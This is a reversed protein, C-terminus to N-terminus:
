YMSVAIRFRAGEGTNEATLTGGMNKEIINKSMQLGIGTGGAAARTTVYLDFVRDLISEPIGGANDTLTVVASGGDAFSKIKIQPSTTNRERFVERANSLINLLVQTYEKPYGVASLEPCLELVVAISEYKLAPSIFALANKVCDNISFVVKEKDPHYFDRFVEITQAMHELLSMTKYVTAALEVDRVASDSDSDPELLNQVLLSISNLPQKWQHAIHDLLEGLAAQRNQQILMIDKERNKGVEEQVRKELTYNLEELIQKQRKLQEEATKRETIDTALAQRSISGDAHFIPTYVVQYWRGDKSSFWERHTTIGEFVVKSSCGPCVSDRGHMVKFCYEGPERFGTLRSLRENM